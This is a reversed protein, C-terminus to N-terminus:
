IQGTIRIKQQRIDYIPYHSTEIAVQLCIFLSLSYCQYIYSITKKKSEFFKKQIYFTNKLKEKKNQNEYTKRIKCKRIM